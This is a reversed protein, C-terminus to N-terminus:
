IQSPRIAPSHWTIPIDAIESSGIKWWRPYSWSLIDQTHVQFHTTKKTNKKCWILPWEIPITILKGEISHHGWNRSGSNWQLPVQFSTKLISVIGMTSGYWGMNLPSFWEMNLPVDWIMGYWGMIKLKGMYGMTKQLVWHQTTFFRHKWPCGSPYVHIPYSSKGPFLDVCKWLEVGSLGQKTDIHEM